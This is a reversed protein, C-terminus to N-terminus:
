ENYGTLLENPWVHFKDILYERWEPREKSIYELDLKWAHAVMGNPLAVESKRVIGLDLLDKLLGRVYQSPALNLERAVAHSSPTWGAQTCYFLYDM